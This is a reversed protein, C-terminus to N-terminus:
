LFIELVFTGLYHTWQDSAFETVIQDKHKGSEAEGKELIELM